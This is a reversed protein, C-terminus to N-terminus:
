KNTNIEEVIKDILDEIKFGGRESIMEITAISSMTKFLIPNKLKSFKPSLNFLFEKIFPYKKVLDGIITEKKM